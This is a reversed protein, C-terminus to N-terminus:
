VCPCLYAITSVFQETNMQANHKLLWLNFACLCCLNVFVFWETNMQSNHKVLQLYQKLVVINTKHLDADRNNLTINAANAIYILTKVSGQCWIHPIIETFGLLICVKSIGHLHAVCYVSTPPLKYIVHPGRIISTRQMLCLHMPFYSRPQFNGFNGKLNQPILTNM